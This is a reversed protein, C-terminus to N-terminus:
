VGRERLLSGIVEIIESAQAPKAIIRRDAWEMLSADGGIQGTYFVFPIGRNGLERAIPAVSECGLRINLIAVSMSGQRLAALADSVTRCMVSQAGARRLIQELEMLLIADDEVILVQANRLPASVELKALQEM